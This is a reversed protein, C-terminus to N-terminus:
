KSFVEHKITNKGVKKAIYMLNDAGKVMEDVSYPSHRYTVVGISFTAPWENKEVMDMLAGHVKRVAAEAYERGAASLIIVFEDGGVRAVIDSKRVNKNITEATFRLLSDGAPHGFTDNIAKFNDCDLYAVTIPTGYRHSTEIEREAMEFFAKRNAIGTLFDKRAFLKEREISSKLRAILIVITIFLIARVLVDWHIILFRSYVVGAQLNAIDGMVAALIGVVLGAPTGVRWT